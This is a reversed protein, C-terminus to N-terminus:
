VTTTTKMTKTTLSPVCARRKTAAVPATPDLSIASTGSM